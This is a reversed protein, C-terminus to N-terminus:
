KLKWLQLQPTTKGEQRKELIELFEDATIVEGETRIKTNNRKGLQSQQINVNLINTFITTIKTKLIPTVRAHHGCHNCTITTATSRPSIVGQPVEPPLKSIVHENSFPYIGVGRFGAKVNDSTLTIWLKSVLM